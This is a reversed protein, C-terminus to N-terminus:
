WWFHRRFREHRMRERMERERREHRQHEFYRSYGDGRFDDREHASAPAAFAATALTGVVAIWGLKSAM